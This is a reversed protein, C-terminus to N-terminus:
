SNELDSDRTGRRILRVNEGSTLMLGARVAHQAAFVTSGRNGRRPAPSALPLGTVMQHSALTMGPVAEHKSVHSFKLGRVGRRIMASRSEIRTVYEANLRQQESHANDAAAQGQGFTLALATIGLCMLIMSYQQKM